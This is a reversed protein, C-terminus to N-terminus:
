RGFFEKRVRIRVERPVGRHEATENYLKMAEIRHIRDDFMDDLVKTAIESAIAIWEKEERARRLRQEITNALQAKDVERGKLKELGAEQALKQEQEQRLERAERLRAEIEAALIGKETAPAAEKERERKKWERKFGVVAPAKLRKKLEPLKRTFETKDIHRSEGERRKGAGLTPILGEDVWNQVARRTAGLLRAAESVSISLRNTRADSLIYDRDFLWQGNEDKCAWDPPGGNHGRAHM